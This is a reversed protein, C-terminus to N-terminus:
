RRAKWDAASQGWINITYSDLPPPLKGPGRNTSGLRKALNESNVNAPDICHIIDNWGLVDVAFDMCASSAERAYGQGWKSRVIGWGVESGPWGAPRWPGGRGIWEGTSKEIFSFMGFGHLAWSGAISAMGRWAPAPGMKGGIYRASEEDGMYACFDKFDEERPVRLILRETEIRTDLISTM